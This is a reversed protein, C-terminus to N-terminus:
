AQLTKTAVAQPDSSRAQIWPLQERQLLGEMAAPDQDLNIGVIEFGRERYKQYQERMNPFEARCPQCWSAWFDVLIVKGKLSEASVPQGQAVLNLGRFDMARGIAGVRRQFQSLSDEIGQQLEPLKVWDLHDQIAAVMLGAKDVQGSYEVQTVN